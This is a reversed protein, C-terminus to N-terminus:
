AAATNGASFVAQRSPILVAQLRFGIHPPHNIPNEFAEIAKTM